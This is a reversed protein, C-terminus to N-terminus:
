FKLRETRRPVLNDIPDTIIGSKSEWLNQGTQWYDAHQIMMRVENLWADSVGAPIYHDEFLRETRTRDVQARTRHAEASRTVEHFCWSSTLAARRRTGQLFIIICASACTGGPDVRTELQHTKKIENLTDIVKEAQSLSGGCSSLVLIVNRVRGKVKDFESVVQDRFDAGISGIWKMEVSHLGALESIKLKGTGCPDAAHALHCSLSIIALGLWSAVIHTTCKNM